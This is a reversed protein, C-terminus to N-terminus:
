IVADLDAKLSENERLLRELIMVLVATYVATMGSFFVIVQVVTETIWLAPGRLVNAFQEYGRPPASEPLSATFLALATAPLAVILLDRAMRKLLISIPARSTGMALHGLIRRASSFIRFHFFCVVCVIPLFWWFSLPAAAFINADYKLSTIASFGVIFVFMLIFLAAGLAYVVENFICIARAIGNLAKV